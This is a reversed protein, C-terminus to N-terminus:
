RPDRWMATMPPAGKPLEIPRQAVFGHRAYLAENRPNSSELYAPLGQEDCQALAASLLRGGLGRGQRDPRVGIHGLHRHPREPHVAEIMSLTRLAIVSRRGFSRLVAPANRIIQLPPTKWDDAEHWIAVGAGGDAVDILHDHKALEVRLFVDYVRRLRDIPRGAPGLLWAFVPDSVFARAMTDAAIALQDRHLRRVDDPM